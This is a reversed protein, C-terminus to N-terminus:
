FHQPKSHQKPQRQSRTWPCPYCGSRQKRGPSRVGGGPVEAYAFLKVIGGPGLGLDAPLVGKAQTSAQARTLYVEADQGGAGRAVYGISYLLVGGGGGGWGSTSVFFETSLAFGEAPTVEVTGTAPPGVIEIATTTAYGTETVGQQSALLTFVYQVGPLLVNPAIVLSSADTPTLFNKANAFDVAPVSSWSTTIKGTSASGDANTQRTMSGVLRLAVSSAQKPSAMQLTVTPVRDEVAHVLTSANAVRDGVVYQVTFRYLTNTEMVDSVGSPVVPGGSSGSLLENIESACGTTSPSEYLASLDMADQFQTVPDFAYMNQLVGCSWSWTNPVFEAGPAVADPDFSGSADLFFDSAGKTIKRPGTGGVMAAVLPSPIITLFVETRSASAGPDSGFTSFLEIKHPENQPFLCFPPITLTRRLARKSREYGDYSTSRIDTYFCDARSSLNTWIYTLETVDVDCSPGFQVISENVDPIRTEMAVTFSRSFQSVYEVRGSTPYVFPVAGAVRDADMTATSNEGACDTLSAGFRYRLGPLTNSPDLTLSSYSGENATDVIEILEPHMDVGPVDGYSGSAVSNPSVVVSTFSWQAVGDWSGDAAVAALSLEQCGGSVRAGSIVVGADQRKNDDIFVTVVKTMQFGSTVDYWEFPNKWSIQMTTPLVVDKPDTWLRIPVDPRNNRLAYALATSRVSRWRTCLSSERAHPLTLLVTRQNVWAVRVDGPGLLAQSEDSLLTSAAVAEAGPEGYPVPDTFTVSIVGTRRDLVGSGTVVAGVIYRREVPTTDELAAMGPAFSDEDVSKAQARYAGLQDPDHILQFRKVLRTVNLGGFVQVTAEVDVATCAQWDGYDLEPEKAVRAYVTTGLPVGCTDCGPLPEFLFEFSTGLPSVSNEGPGLAVRTDLGEVKPPPAPMPPPSPPRSLMVYRRSFWPDDGGTSGDLVAVRADANPRQNHFSVRFGHYGVKQFDADYFRVVLATMKRAFGTRHVVDVVTAPTPPANSIESLQPPYFLVSPDANAVYERVVATVLVREDDAYSDMMANVDRSEIGDGNALRVWAGKTNPRVEATVVATVGVGRRGSVAELEWLANSLMRAKAASLFVADDTIAYARAVENPDVVNTVAFVFRCAGEGVTRESEPEDAVETVAVSTEPLGLAYAVAERVVNRRLIGAALDANFNSAEYGHLIVVPAWTHKPRGPGSYSVTVDFERSYTASAVAGRLAVVRDFTMGDNLADDETTGLSLVLNTVPLNPPVIVPDWEHTGNRTLYLNVPETSTFPRRVHDTLNPSCCASSPVSSTDPDHHVDDVLAARPPVWTGPGSWDGPETFAATALSKSLSSLAAISVDNPEGTSVSMALSLPVVVCDDGVCDEWLLVTIDGARTVNLELDVRMPEDSTLVANLSGCSPLALGLFIVFPLMARSGFPVRM